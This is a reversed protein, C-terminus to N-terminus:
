LGAGRQARGARVAVDADTCTALYQRRAGQISPVPIGREKAVRAAQRYAEAFGPCVRRVYAARLIDNFQIDSAELRM